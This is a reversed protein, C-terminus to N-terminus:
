NLVQGRCLHNAVADAAARHGAANWQGDARYYARQMAPALAIVRVGLRAGLASLRQEPYGMGHALQGPAPVVVMGLKAGNREAYDAMKAILADTTRWADEHVGDRPTSFLAEDAAAHAPPIFTLRAFERVLQLARSHDAIEAALRYRTQMRREFSPADAFSEDIRPVGHADLFYFPRLKHPTLAFSNDVVDDPAFQLLVLDPQYRMVTTQLLVLEQATGYGAVGFNLVEVLKGPRFDCRQLQPELRWWWTDRLAIPMAESYEDGLVAIRYVPDPKDLLRERDRFGAPNIAVRTRGSEGAYWGQKHARLSWGLQPDLQFLDPTGYGTARLFLELILLAGGALAAAIGMKKM